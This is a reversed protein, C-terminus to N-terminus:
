QVNGLFQFIENVTKASSWGVGPISGSAVGTWNGYGVMWLGRHHESQNSGNVLPIKGSVLSTDKTHGFIDLEKLFQTSANYGTCWIIADVEAYFEEVGKSGDGEWHVGHSNVRDFPTYYQDLVGRAKADRVPPLMIIKGLSPISERGGGQLLAKAAIDFVDKGTMDDPLYEPPNLTVWLVQKAHASVESLIQAGSNGEGVVVVRKSEFLEPSRYESSHTNSTKAMVEKGKENTKVRFRRVSGEKECEFEAKSVSLVTVPRLVDIGLVKEYARLYEAMEYAFPYEDPDVVCGPGREAKLHDIMSFYPLSSWSYTSFLKLSDWRSQWSGGGAPNDDVVLLSVNQGREAARRKLCAAVALGSQGGGIICVDVEKVCTSM